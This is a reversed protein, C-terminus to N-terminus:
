QQQRPKRYWDRRWFFEDEISHHVIDDKAFEGQPFAIPQHKEMIWGYMYVINEYKMPKGGHLLYELTHHSISSPMGHLVHQELMSITLSIFKFFKFNEDRVSQKWMFPDEFSHLISVGYHQIDWISLLGESLEDHVVEKFERLLPKM